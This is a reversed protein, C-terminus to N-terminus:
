LVLLIQQERNIMFHAVHDKVRYILHPELM